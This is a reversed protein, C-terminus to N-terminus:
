IPTNPTQSLKFTSQDPGQDPVLPSNSTNGYVMTNAFDQSFGKDLLQQVAFAQNQEKTTAPTWATQDMAGASTGSNNGSQSVAPLQDKVDFKITDIREEMIYQDNPSNPNVVKYPTVTREKETYDKGKKTNFGLSAITPPAGPGGWELVSGGTKSVKPLKTILKKDNIFTPSQFPRVIREMTM